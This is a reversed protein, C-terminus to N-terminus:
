KILTCNSIIKKYKKSNKFKNKTVIFKIKNDSKIDRKFLNPMEQKISKILCDIGDYIKVRKDFIKSIQNKVFYYHTCGLVIDTINKRKFKLLKQKLYPVINAYNPYYKEVKTALLPMKCLIINKNFKQKNKLSYVTRSTALILVKDDKSFNLLNPSIAFMKVFDFHKKIDDFISTGITNCGFIIATPKCKKLIYNINNKTIEYLSKKTKNGYPLNKIDAFYVLNANCVVKDLEILVSLGGM